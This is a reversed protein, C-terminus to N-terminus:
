DGHVVISAGIAAARGALAELGALLGALRDREVRADLHAEAWPELRSSRLEDEVGRRLEERRQAAARSVDRHFAEARAAAITAESYPDLPLSRGPDIRQLVEIALDDDIAVAGPEGAIAFEM